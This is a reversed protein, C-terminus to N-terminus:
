VFFFEQGPGAWGLGALVPRAWPDRPNAIGPREPGSGPRATGWIFFSPRARYLFFSRPWTTPDWFGQARYLFSRPRLTSTPTKIGAGSGYLSKSLAIFLYVFYVLEPPRPFHSFRPIYLHWSTSRASDPIPIDSKPIRVFSIYLFIFFM